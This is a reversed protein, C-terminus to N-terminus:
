NVPLRVVFKAGGSESSQLTISGKHKAIIEHCMYLGLGTGKGVDKTTYFPKFIDRRISEPIGPGNDACEFVVQKKMDDYYTSLIIKGSKLDVAQFANLIINLAVQGLNAFNGRIDPLNNEYNETIVVYSKKLKNSLIRLADKIVLNMCVTEFYTHSQRSLGLLSAVVGKARGLEKEAFKLDSILEQAPQKEKNLKELDEIASQVLSTSSSLPNNLEHAVGAVLQGIAALSESRILQEQAKEKENLANELDRTRQEVKEELGRNLEDIIKYSRTNQVALASQMSLTELLDLDEPTYLDGSLKEGLIIFGNLSEEFIMPLAMEAHFSDMVSLVKQIEPDDSREMLNKRILPRRCKEMLIIFPSEGSILSENGTYIHSGKASCIAFGSGAENHLYHNRLYLACNDAQIANTVTETLLRGIEKFDLVSVIMRSVHKITKQYDYKGKFFLRDVIKQIQTKLPGFIFTIILFFIVPFYISGPFYYDKFVKHALMVVLAYFGTLFAMLLSYVLSKKILIGMDLLDYKFLGVAFVILPIFSLSGPPYVPYGHMPLVNLGNMLGMLGFGTFIYKLNNKRISSKERLIANYLLTLVYITIFLSGLGFLPYLKGARAFYGFYHRHMSEIYLPTPTLWMLAFACAYAFGTLWKRNNINLYAHFFHVYVPFLYIIIFHDARSIFLATADSEVNLVLFIDIYLFSGLLCLIFFLINVETKRGRMLTLVALGLFCCLTLLPPISYPNIM